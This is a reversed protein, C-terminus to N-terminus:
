AGVSELQVGKRNKKQRAILLKEERVEMAASGFLENEFEGPIKLLSEPNDLAGYYVSKGKSILGNRFYEFGDDSCFGWMQAAVEWLDDRYAGYHLDHFHKEYSRLEKLALKRLIPKITIEPNADSKIEEIIKWFIELEMKERRDECEERSM